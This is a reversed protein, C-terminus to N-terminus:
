DVQGMFSDLYVTSSFIFSTRPDSTNEANEVDLITVHVLLFTSHRQKCASAYLM